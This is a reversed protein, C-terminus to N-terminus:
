ENEKPETPPDDDPAQHSQRTEHSPLRERSDPHRASGNVGLDDKPLYAPPLGTASYDAMLQRLLPALGPETAGEVQAGSRDHPPNGAADRSQLTRRKGDANKAKDLPFIRCLAAGTREDVLWVHTLDWAAFRLTIRSLSRYRSPIEFRRGELSVTGDSRRQTRVQATTFAFRLAASEPAPRGVDPGQLARELPAQGTESHVRRQYEMEVWAQTAENLFALSIERQGEMMALLRGELQAWFNEQKGNQYPSYPLTTRHIISLRGLGETTEGAMMASGNDTLLSRPLGRKLFAQSLGHILNEATEALYWQVHCALRSRDDLVGLALPTVWEGRSTLVKHSGHHFDLHWLAHVHEAEFSRVERHELRSEARRAGETDRTTLRRRKLLGEARLFRRVTSYSPLPGLAPDQKVRVALNDYHLQCSWSKHEQYLTRIAERLSESLATQLGADKRIKPRLAGVQDSQRRRAQHYWREITSFGFRKPKGTIPHRWTKEALQEIEARLEGPAPPAAFLPGVISFRLLAWRESRPLHSRDDSPVDNM